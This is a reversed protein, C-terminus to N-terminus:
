IEELLAYHGSTWDRMFDKATLYEKYKAKSIANAESETLGDFWEVIPKFKALREEVNAKVLAHVDIESDADVQCHVDISMVVFRKKMQRMMYSAQDVANDEVRYRHANYPDDTFEKRPDGLVSLILDGGKWYLGTDVEM